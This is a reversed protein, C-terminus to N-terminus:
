NKIFKISSRDKNAVNFFTLVYNGGPLTAINIAKTEASKFDLIEFYVIRGFMDSATVIFKGVADGVSINLHDSAPNPFVKFTGSLQDSVPSLSGPLDVYTVGLFTGDPTYEASVIVEKKENSYFNYLITTDKGLIEKLGAPINGGLIPVPDVWFGLIKVFLKIDTISQAKERLVNFFNGSVKLTGFADILGRLSSVFQIRVSDPKIPLASLITDPIINKGVDIRFEGNSSTTSLFEIPTKRLLPKKTYKIVLNTDLFPTTGGFGLAEMVNVSTKIYVDQGGSRLLLNADPFLAVDKGATPNLYLEQQRTGTNLKSFDWVKPGGTSGTNLGGSVNQAFITKLTDGAKPFIANNIIIQSFAESFQFLSALCLFLIRM